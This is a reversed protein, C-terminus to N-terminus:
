WLHKKLNRPILIRLIKKVKIINEEFEINYKKLIKKANDYSIRMLASTITM